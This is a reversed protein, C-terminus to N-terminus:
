GVPWNCGWVLMLLAVTLLTGADLHNPTAAAGASMAAARRARAAASSASPAFPVDALADRATARRCRPM